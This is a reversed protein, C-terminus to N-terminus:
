FTDSIECHSHLSAPTPQLSQVHPLMQLIFILTSAIESDRLYGEALLFSHDLLLIRMVAAEEKPVAVGLDNSFGVGLWTRDQVRLLFARIGGDNTQWDSSSADLILFVPM